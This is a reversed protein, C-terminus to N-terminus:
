ISVLPVLLEFLLNFLVFLVLHYSIPSVGSNAVYKGFVLATQMYGKVRSIVGRQSKM